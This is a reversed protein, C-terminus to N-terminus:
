LNVALFFELSVIRDSPRSENKELM